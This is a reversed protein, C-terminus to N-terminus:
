GKLIDIVAGSANTKFWIYPNASVPETEQIFLNQPGAPGTPGPEGQLGRPGAVEILETSGPVEELLEQVGPTEVVLVEQETIVLLEDSM